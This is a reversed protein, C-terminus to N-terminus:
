DKIVEKRRQMSEALDIFDILEWYSLHKLSEMVLLFPSSTDLRNTRRRERMLAKQDETLTVGKKRSM